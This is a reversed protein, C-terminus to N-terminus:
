VGTFVLKALLTIQQTPTQPLLVHVGWINLGAQLSTVSIEILLFSQM